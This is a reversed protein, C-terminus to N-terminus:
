GAATHALDRVMLLCQNVIEDCTVADGPLLARLQLDTPRTEPM